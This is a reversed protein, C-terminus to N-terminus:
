EELTVKKKDQKVTKEAQKSQMENYKEIATQVFDAARRVRESTKPDLNEVIKKATTRLALLPLFPLAFSITCLPTFTCIATTIAGGFFVVGLSQILMGVTKTMGSYVTQRHPLMKQIASFTGPNTAVPRPTAVPYSPVLYGEYGSQVSFGGNNPYGSYGQYPGGGAVGGYSNVYQQVADQYNQHDYNSTDIVGKLFIM